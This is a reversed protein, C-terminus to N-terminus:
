LLEGKLRYDMGSLELTNKGGVLGAIRSATRDGLIGGLKDISMNATIILGGQKSQWRRDMIEFLVNQLFETAKESGLDDLLMPITAYKEILAAEKEPKDAARIERSIQGMRLVMANPVERLIAVAAHTKGSGAKGWLYYNEKPFGSLAALVAKNTYKDATFDEYARVGGLRQMEEKAQKEKAQAEWIPRMKERYKVQAELEKCRCDLYGCKHCFKDEMASFEKMKQAFWSNDKLKGALDQM